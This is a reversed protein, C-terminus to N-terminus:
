SPAKHININGTSVDLVLTAPSPQASIDLPGHYNSSGSSNQVKIDFESNIAGVNTNADLTVNTTPPLTVAINGQESQFVFRAPNQTSSTPPVVLMGDFTVNGQGTEIHSGDALIAHHVTVDGTSGRINLVGSLGDVIVKGVPAEVDLQMSPGNKPLAAAPLTITADVSDGNNQLFGGSDPVTM